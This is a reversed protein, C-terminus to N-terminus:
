ERHHPELLFPHTAVELLAELAPELVRVDDGAHRADDLAGAAEDPGFRVGADDDEGATAEELRRVAPVQRLVPVEVIGRLQGADVDPLLRSFEKFPDPVTVKGHSRGALDHRRGLSPM